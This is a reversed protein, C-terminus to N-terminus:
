VTLFNYKLKNTKTTVIFTVGKKIEKESNVTLM